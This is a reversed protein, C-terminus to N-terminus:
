RLTIEDHCFGFRGPGTGDAAAPDGAFDYVAEAASKAADERGFFYHVVDVSLVSIIVALSARKAHCYLVKSFGTPGDAGVPV